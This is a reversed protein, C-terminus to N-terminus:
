STSHQLFGILSARVRYNFYFAQSHNVMTGNKVDSFSVNLCPQKCKVDVTYKCCIHM